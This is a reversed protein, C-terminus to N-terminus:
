WGGTTGDVLRWHLHTLKFSSQEDDFMPVKFRWTGGAPIDAIVASDHNLLAGRSDFFSFSVEGYVCAVAATNRLTGTVYRLGNVGKCECSLMDLGVTQAAPAGPEDAVRAAADSDRADRPHNVGKALLGLLLLVVVGLAGFQVLAPQVERRKSERDNTSQEEDDHFRM